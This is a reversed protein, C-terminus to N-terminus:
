NRKRVGSITLQAINPSEPFFCRRRTTVNFHKKVGEGEGLCALLGCHCLIPQDKHCVECRACLTVEPLHHRRDFPSTQSWLDSVSTLFSPFFSYASNKSPGISICLPSQKTQGSPLKLHLKRPAWLARPLPQCSASRHRVGLARETSVFAEGSQGPCAQSPPSACRDSHCWGWRM